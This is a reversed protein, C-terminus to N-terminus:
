YKIMYQMAVAPPQVTNSRGYIPNSRSADFGVDASDDHYRCGTGRDQYKYFCGDTVLVSSFGVLGDGGFMGTINPLGAPIDSRVANGEAGQIFRSQLNPVKFNSSSTYGYTTGIVSYLASYTTRSYAAGDCRLFGEPWVNSTGAWAIVTGTPPLVGTFTKTITIDKGPAANTYKIIYRVTVSKPQVTSSNGYVTSCRSADFDFNYAGGMGSGDSGNNGNKWTSIAGTAGCKGPFPGEDSDVPYVSATINPLGAEKYTGPTTSGELFQNETLLPLRFDSGSKSGYRVGIVAYLEAFDTRLLYTGDCWRFGAPLSTGGYPLITGVPVGGLSGSCATPTGNVLYIPKDNAGVNTTGLKTAIDARVGNGATQAWTALGKLSMNSPDAM